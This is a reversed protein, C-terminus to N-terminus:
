AIRIVEEIIGPPPPRPQMWWTSAFRKDRADIEPPVPVVINRAAERLTVAEVLDRTCSTVVAHIAGSAALQQHEPVVCTHMCLVNRASDWIPLRSASEALWAYVQRVLHRCILPLVDIVHHFTVSAIAICFIVLYPCCDYFIIGVHYAVSSDSGKRKSNLCSVCALILQRLLIAIRGAVLVDNTCNCTVISAHM